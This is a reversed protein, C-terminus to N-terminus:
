FLSSAVAAPRDGRTSRAKRRGTLGFSSFPALHYIFHQVWAFNTGREAPNFPPNALVFDARLDPHLDRRFTDAQEEGLDAEIGRIALNMM